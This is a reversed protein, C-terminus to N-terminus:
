GCCQAQLPQLPPIPGRPCFHSVSPCRLLYGSPALPSGSPLVPFSRSVLRFGLLYGSPVLPSGLYILPFWFIVYSLVLPGGPGYDANKKSDIGQGPESVGNKFCSGDKFKSGGQNLM